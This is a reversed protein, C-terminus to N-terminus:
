AVLHVSSRWLEVSNFFKSLSEHHTAPDALIHRDKEPDAMGQLDVVNVRGATPILTWHSFVQPTGSLQDTIVEDANADFTVLESSHLMKVSVVVGRMMSLLTNRPVVRM